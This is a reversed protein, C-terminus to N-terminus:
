PRCRHAPEGWAHAGAPQHYRTDHKYGTCPSMEPTNVRVPRLTIAGRAGCLCSSRRPHADSKQLATQSGNGEGALLSSLADWV